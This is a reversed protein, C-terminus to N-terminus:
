RKMRGINEDLMKRIDEPIDRDLIAKVKDSLHCINDSPSYLLSKVFVADPIRSGCGKVIDTQIKDPDTAEVIEDLMSVILEGNIYVDAAGLRNRRVEFVYKKNRHRKEIHTGNLNAIKDLQRQIADEIIFLIPHYIEDAADINEWIMDRYRHLQGLRGEAEKLKEKHDM